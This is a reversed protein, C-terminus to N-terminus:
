IENSLLIKAFRLSACLYLLDKYTIEPETRSFQCETILASWHAFYTSSLPMAALEGSCEVFLMPATKKLQICFVPIFIEM